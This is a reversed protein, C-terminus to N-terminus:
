CSLPEVGSVEVSTVSLNQCKLVKILDLNWVFYGTVPSISFKLNFKFLFSTNAIFPVRKGKPPEDLHNPNCIKLRGMRTRNGCKRSFFM